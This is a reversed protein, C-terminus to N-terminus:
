GGKVRKRSMLGMIEEPNKQLLFSFDAHVKENDTSPLKALTHCAICSNGPAKKQVYPELTVNVLKEPRVGRHDNRAKYPIAPNELWQVGVLQYNKWVSGQSVEALKDQWKGNLSQAIPPIPVLRTIQSRTQAQVEGEKRTVAHPFEKRWLYPESALPTNAKCDGTCDSDYLNYEGSTPLNDADPANDIHEFTAWIWAQQSTKQVVHLGVLGVPVTVQTFEGEANEPTQVNFTRYTTYYQSKKEEPIPDPLVMWAAKLEITGESDNDSCPVTPYNANPYNGDPEKASCTLEFLHNKNDFQQLNEVSYWGRDVIEEVEVPNLRAENLIYNGARDILPQHGVLLLKLDSDTRLRDDNLVPESDFETMRLDVAVNAEGEACQSPVVPQPDPKTGEANLVQSPVNYFEWVRPADPAEGINKNGLPSGDQCSAPWNLAVFTQWAFFGFATEPNYSAKISQSPNLPIQQNVQPQPVSNSQSRAQEATLILLNIGIIAALVTCFIAVFRRTFKM